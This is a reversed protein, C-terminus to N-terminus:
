EAAKELHVEITKGEKLLQMMKRSLYKASKDARHAFTRPSLHEGIRIVVEKEDNFDPNTQAIVIETVDGVTLTMKVKPNKKAFEKLKTADFDANIGIICDGEPTLHDEKTFEFTNKHTGKINPHGCAHFIM